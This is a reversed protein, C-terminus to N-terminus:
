EYAHIIWFYKLVKLDGGTFSLAIYWSDLLLQSRAIIKTESENGKNFIVIDTNHIYILVIIIFILKTIATSSISTFKTSYLYRILLISIM